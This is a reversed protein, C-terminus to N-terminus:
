TFSRDRNASRDHDDDWNRGRQHRSSKRRASRRPTERDGAWARDRGDRQRPGTDARYFREFIRPLHESSIGSGTDAVVIEVAADTAKSGITITGSTTHRIANEVLNLIMQAAATRDAWVNKADPAVALVVELGKKRAPADTVSAVERFLTYTSWRRSPRGAALNSGHFILCIM